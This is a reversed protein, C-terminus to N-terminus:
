PITLGNKIVLRVSHSLCQQKIQKYKCQKKIKLSKNSLSFSLFFFGSAPEGSLTPTPPSSGPVRLDQSSGFDLAPWKVSQAGLARSSNKLSFRLQKLM